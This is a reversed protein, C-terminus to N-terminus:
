IGWEIHAGSARVEFRPRQSIHSRLLTAHYSLSHLPFIDYIPAAPWFSSETPNDVGIQPPGFKPGPRGSPYGCGPKSCRMEAPCCAIEDLMCQEFWCPATGPRTNCLLPAWAGQCRRRSKLLQSVNTREHRRMVGRTLANSSSDPLLRGVPPSCVSHSSSHCRWAPAHRCGAQAQVLLGAAAAWVDKPKRQPWM